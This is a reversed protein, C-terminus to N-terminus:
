RFFPNYRKENGITTASGHGSYVVVDDPLTLLKKRINTILMDYNGGPLDTRGISGAFLVDGAFLMKESELYYCISGPSHGPVHLTKIRSKGLPIIDGENIFGSLSPPKEITIGLVMALQKNVKLVAEEENHAKFIIGPFNQALYSAGFIHDPHCHTYLVMQPSLNNKEIFTHLQSKEDPTFCGPDIILCDKGSYLLYTNEQFDSFVFSKLQIM